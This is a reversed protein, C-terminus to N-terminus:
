LMFLSIEPMEQILLARLVELTEPLLKILLIKKHGFCTKAILYGGEIYYRNLQLIMSDLM